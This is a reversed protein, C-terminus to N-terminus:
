RRKKDKFGRAAVQERSADGLKWIEISKYRSMRDHAAYGGAYKWHNAAGVVTEEKNLAALALPINVLVTEEHLYRTQAEIMYDIYGGITTKAQAIIAFNAINEAQLDRVMQNREFRVITGKPWDAPRFIEGDEIVAIPKQDAQASNFFEDLATHAKILERSQWRVLEASIGLKSVMFGRRAMRPSLGANKRQPLPRSHCDDDWEHGDFLDIEIPTPIEIM